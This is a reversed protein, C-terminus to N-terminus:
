ENRRHFTSTFRGPIRRGCPCHDEQLENKVIRHGSRRLLIKKCSPCYTHMGEGLINGEYVFNLGQKTGIESAKHLLAPSTAQRDNLRYNPYFASFHLPTDEGLNEVIWATMRTIEELSDNLGPILLCTIELWIDTNKRLWTLTDLVPQLRGGLHKQYFDESFAKLDINAASVEAYVEPLAELSIYGNTVLVTELGARKAERVTDQLFEAWITPENYTFALSSCDSSIARDVAEAPTWRDYRSWDPWSRSLTWNQCFACNLNCGFTGLSYTFSGPHFHYLPKKEIPDAHVAAPRGYAMAFLRGQHNERVGCFGAKGEGVRCKRPCLRCEVQNEPSSTWWLAEKETTTHM